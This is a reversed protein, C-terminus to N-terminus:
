KIQTDRRGEKMKIIPNVIFPIETKIIKADRLAREMITLDYDSHAQLELGCLEPIEVFRVAFGRDGKDLDMFKMFFNRAISPHTVRYQKRARLLLGSSRSNGMEIDM